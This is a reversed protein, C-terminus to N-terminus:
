PRPHSSFFEWIIDNGPFNPTPKDSGARPVRTSGPWAHGMDHIVYAIVESNNRGNKFHHITTNMKKDFSSAPTKDCGNATVWLDITQSASWMEKAAAISSKQLGGEIPVHEDILGQIICASVPIQPTPPHHWSKEGEDRGGATGVVPAIAAFRNGPAAALFHCFIAGNSLGTAYIRKPDIPYKGALEDLLANAFGVDDVNNQHAYGFGFAVNWTLLVHESEGTGNPAVLMFGAEEAKKELEYYYLAGRAGGGGGHFLFVVPLASTKDWKSPLYLYYTRKRGAHEIEYLTSAVQQELAKKDVRARIADKIKERLWQASVPEAFFGALALFMILLTLGAKQQKM